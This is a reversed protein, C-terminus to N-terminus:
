RNALYPNNQRISKNTMKQNFRKEDEADANGNLDNLIENVAKRLYERGETQQPTGQPEEQPMMESNEDNEVSADAVNTLKDASAKLDNGDLVKKAQAIIMNLAAKVDDKDVNVGNQIINSMKGAMSQLDEKGEGEDSQPEEMGFEGEGQPPMEGGMPPQDIPPIEGGMDM